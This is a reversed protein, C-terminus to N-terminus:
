MLAKLTIAGTFTQLNFNVGISTIPDLTPATPGYYVGGTHGHLAAFGSNPMYSWEGSFMRRGNSQVKAGLTMRAIVTGAEAGTFDTQAMACGADLAVTVDHGQTGDTNRWHRHKTSIGGTFNNPTISILRGATGNPNLSGILVIEYAMDKEGDLGTFSVNASQNTLDMRTGKQIFDSRGDSDLFKRAASAGGTRSAAKGWLESRDVITGGVVPSGTVLKGVVGGTGSQDIWEVASGSQGSAGGATPEAAALKTADRIGAEMHNFKAASLDTAEDVWAQPIYVGM